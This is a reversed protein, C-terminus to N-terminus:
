EMVALESLLRSGIKERNLQPRIHLSVILRCEYYCASSPYMLPLAVGVVFNHCM